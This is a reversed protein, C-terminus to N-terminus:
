LEYDYNMDILEVDGVAENCGCDAMTPKAGSSGRLLETIESTGDDDDNFSRIM